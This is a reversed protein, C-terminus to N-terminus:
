ILHLGLKNTMQVAANNAFAGDYVFYVLQLQNSLLDLLKVLMPKVQAMEGKLKVEQNNKSGLPRGKGKKKPPLTQIM